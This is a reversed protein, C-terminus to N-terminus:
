QLPILIIFTLLFYPLLMFLGFVKIFRLFLYADVGNAVIIEKDPLSFVTKWFPLPGGPLEQPRKSEPALIARPQYVRRLNAKGHLVIWLASFAGVTILAVVLASVFSSTTSTSTDKGTASM